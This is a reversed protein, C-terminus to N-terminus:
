EHKKATYCDAPVLSKRKKSADSPRASNSHRWGFLLFLFFLGM